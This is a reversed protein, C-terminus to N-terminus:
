SQGDSSPTSSLTTSSVSSSRAAASSGSGAGPGLLEAVQQEHEDVDGALAADLGLGGEAGGVGLEPSPEGAHLALRRVAPDGQAVEVEGGEILQPIGGLRFLPDADHGDAVARGAGAGVPAARAVQARDAELEADLLPGLPRAEDPEAVRLDQAGRRDGVAHRRVQAALARAPHRGLVRHQRPGGGLARVALRGLAPDAAPGVLDLPEDPARQTADHVEAPEALPRDGDVAVDELRVAARARRRDRAAVHREARGEDGVPHLPVQRRATAATDTPM